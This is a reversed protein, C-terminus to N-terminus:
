AHVEGKQFLPLYINFCAGLETNKASIFGGSSQIIKHVISLGLGLGFQLGSKKTTFNPMFIKPMAEEPIGPGTDQISLIIRNEKVESSIIIKKNKTEAHYMADSANKFLNTWVQVLEGKNGLVSLHKGEMDNDITINKIVNQSVVLALHLSDSLDVEEMMLSGRAGLSKMSEVVGAAHEASLTVDRFTAGMDWLDALDQRRHEPEKIIRKLQQDDLGM